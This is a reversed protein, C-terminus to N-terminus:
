FANWSNDDIIFNMTTTEYKVHGGAKAVRQTVDIVKVRVFFAERLWVSGSEVLKFLGKSIPEKIFVNAHLSADLRLKYQLNLIQNYWVDYNLVNHRYGQWVWSRKRDDRIPRSTIARADHTVIGTQDFYEPYQVFSPGPSLSTITGSDINGFTDAGAVQFDSM